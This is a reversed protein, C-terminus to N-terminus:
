KTKNAINYNRSDAASLSKIAVKTLVSLSCLHIQLRSLTTNCDTVFAAFLGAWTPCLLLNEYERINEARCVRRTQM